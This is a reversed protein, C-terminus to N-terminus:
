QKAGKKDLYERCQDLAQRCENVKYSTCGCAALMKQRAQLNALAEAVAKEFAKTGYANVFGSLTKYKTQYEYIRGVGLAAAREQAERKRKASYAYSIANLQSKKM